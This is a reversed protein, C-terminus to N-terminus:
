GPPTLRSQSCAEMFILSDALRSPMKKLLSQHPPLTGRTGGRGNHGEAGGMTPPVVGPGTTWAKILFCASCTVLLLGILSYREIAEADAGAGPEQGTQTGTKVETSLLCHRLLMLWVFGKMGLRSQGHHKMLAIIFRVLVFPM